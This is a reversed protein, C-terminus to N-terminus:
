ISASTSSHSTKDMPWSSTNSPKLTSENRGTNTSMSLISCLGSIISRELRAIVCRSSTRGFTEGFTAAHPATRMKQWRRWVMSNMSTASCDRMAICLSDASCGSTSCRSPPRAADSMYMSKKSRLVCRVAAAVAALMQRLTSGSHRPPTASTAGFRECSSDLGSWRMTSLAHRAKERRTSDNAPLSMASCASIPLSVSCRMTPRTDDHPLCSRPKATPEAVSVHTTFVSAVAQRHEAPRATSSRSAPPSPMTCPSM